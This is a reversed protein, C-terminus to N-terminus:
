FPIDDDVPLEEQYAGPDRRKGTAAADQRDPNYTPRGAGTGDWDLQNFRDVFIRTARKEKGDRDEWVDQTLTGQVLVPRGKTLKDAIYEATKGFAKCDHFSVKRKDKPGREHAIGFNVIADGSPLYSLEPDRTLRGSIVLVNTDPMRLDSM